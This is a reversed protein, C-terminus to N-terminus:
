STIKIMLAVGVPVFLLFIEIGYVNSLKRNDEVSAQVPEFILNAFIFSTM